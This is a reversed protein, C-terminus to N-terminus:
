GGDYHLYSYHVIWDGLTAFIKRRGGIVFEKLLPKHCHGLIVADCGEEFKGMSFAEMKKVLADQAGATLGKSVEASLRALRWLMSLPLRRQLRYFSGSRLLRRLRLYSRNEVDVTDGHSLFVRLGDLDLVVSDPIVNMGLSVSFYDRLFFDHNGECFSIAVGQNKLRVLCEIATTFGPYIKGKRAFWFDFFDGAIFLSDITLREPTFGNGAQGFETREGDPGDSMGAGGRLRNLFLVLTQYGASEAGRLHADAIFVAKM